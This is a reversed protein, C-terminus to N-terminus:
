EEDRGFISTRYIMDALLFGAFILILLWRLDIQFDQYKTQTELNVGDPWSPKNFDLVRGGSIQALETLLTRNIGEIGQEYTPVPEELPQLLAPVVEAIETVTQVQGNARIGTATLHFRFRSDQARYPIRGQWNGEGDSQLVLFERNSSQPSKETVSKETIENAENTKTAVVPEVHVTMKQIFFSDLSDLHTRMFLEEGERFVELRFLDRPRERRTWVMARRWATDFNKKDYSNVHIGQIPATFSIVRGGFAAGYIQGWDDKGPKRALIWNAWVPLDRAPGYEPLHRVDMILEADAKEMLVAYGPVKLSRFDQFTLKSFFLHSPNIRTTIGQEENKVYDVTRRSLQGLPIEFRDLYAVGGSAEAIRNLENFGEQSEIIIDLMDLLYTVEIEDQDDQASELKELEPLSKEGEVMGIANVVVKDQWRKALQVATEKRFEGAETMWWNELGLEDVDTADAILLIRYQPKEQTTIKDDLQEFTYYAETLAPYVAIGEPQLSLQRRREFEQELLQLAERLRKELDEKGQYLSLPVLEHPEDSFGLIQLRSGEGLTNVSDLLYTIAREFTARKYYLSASVDLLVVVTMPPEGSSGKPQLKVPLLEALPTGAYGEYGFTEAGGIVVLGGGKRVYTRLNNLLTMRKEEQKALRLPGLNNFVVLDYDMFDFETKIKDPKIEELQWDSSNFLHRLFASSTEEDGDLLLVRAPPFLSIFRNQIDKSGPSSPITKVRVDTIVVTMQQLGKQDIINLAIPQCRTKVISEKSPAMIIAGPKLRADGCHWDTTFLLPDRGIFLNLFGSVEKNPNPSLISIGLLSKEGPRRNVPLSVQHLWPISMHSWWGEEMKATVPVVWIPSRAHSAAVLIQQTSYPRGNSVQWGDSILLIIHHPPMPQETISTSDTSNQHTSPPTTQEIISTSDTSNQHTSPPMAQEIISTLDTSYPQYASQEIQWDLYTHAPRSTGAFLRYQIQLPMPAAAELGTVFQQVQKLYAEMQGGRRPNVISQSIDVLVDLTIPVQIQREHKLVGESWYLFLGVSIAGGRLLLVLGIKRWSALMSDQNTHRVQHWLWGLLPAIWIFLLAAIIFGTVITNLFANM